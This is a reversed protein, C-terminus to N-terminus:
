VWESSSISDSLIKIEARKAIPTRTDSGQRIFRKTDGKEPGLSQFLRLFRKSMNASQGATLVLSAFETSHVSRLVIKNIKARM